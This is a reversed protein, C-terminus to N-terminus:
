KKYAVVRKPIDCLIIGWLTSFCYFFPIKEYDLDVLWLYGGCKLSICDLLGGNTKILVLIHPVGVKDLTYLPVRHFVGISDGISHMINECIFHPPLGVMHDWLLQLYRFAVM